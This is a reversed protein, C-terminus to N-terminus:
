LTHSPYPDEAARCTEIVADWEPESAVEADALARQAIELPTTASLESAMALWAAAVSDPSPESAETEVRLGLWILPWAYRPVPLTTTEHTLAQRVEERARRQGRARAGDRRRSRARSPTSTAAASRWWAGHHRSTRRPPRTAVPWRPSGPAITSCCARTRARSSTTRRGRSCATRPRGSASTSSRRPATSRRRAGRVGLADARGAGGPGPGATRGRRADRSRGLNQLVDSLNLYGRLTM